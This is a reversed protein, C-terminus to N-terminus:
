GELQRKRSKLYITFIMFALVAAGGILAMGWLVYDIYAYFYYKTLDLSSFLLNGREKEVIIEGNETHINIGDVKAWQNMQKLDIWSINSLKEMETILEKFGEVGLYPHYFAAFMGDRTMSTMEAENMMQEITNPDKSKVYGM